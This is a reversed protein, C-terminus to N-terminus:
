TMTTKSSIKERNRKEEIDLRGIFFARTAGLGSETNFDLFFRLLVFELTLTTTTFECLRCRVLACFLALRKFRVSSIPLSDFSFTSAVPIAAIASTCYFNSKIIIKKGRCNLNYTPWLQIAFQVWHLTKCM